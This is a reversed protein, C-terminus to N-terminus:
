LKSEHDGAAAHWTLTREERRLDDEVRSQNAVEAPYLKRHAARSM